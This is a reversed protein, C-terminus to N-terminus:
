LVLLALYCFSENMCLLKVIEGQFVSVIDWWVYFVQKERWEICKPAQLFLM